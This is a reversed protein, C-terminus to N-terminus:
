PNPELRITHFAEISEPDIRKIKDLREKSSDIVFICSEPCTRNHIYAAIQGSFGAGVLLMRRMRLSDAHRTLANRVDAILFGFMFAKLAAEDPVEEARYCIEYAHRPLIVYKGYTGETSGKGHGLIKSEGYDCETYRNLVTCAYCDYNDCPMHGFVCVYDGKRVDREDLTSEIVRGVGGNGFVFYDEELFEYKRPHIGEPHSALWFSGHLPVYMMEVLVEGPQLERVQSEVLETKLTGREKDDWTTRIQINNM